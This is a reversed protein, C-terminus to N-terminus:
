HPPSLPLNYLQSQLLPLSVPSADFCANGKKWLRNLLACWLADLGRNMQFDAVQLAVIEARRFGAQLGVSLIARDRLGLLKEPNPADLIARAQKQSCAPTMGERPTVAPREVDRVQNVDVVGFKVLHTFLSSLAALRRRVTSALSRQQGSMLREWAMVARHDVRRLEALTQINLSRMFYTVDCACFRGNQPCHRILSKQLSFTAVFSIRFILTLNSTPAPLKQVPRQCTSGPSLAM